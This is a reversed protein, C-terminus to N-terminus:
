NNWTTIGGNMDLQLPVSGLQDLCQWSSADPFAFDFMMGPTFSNDSDATLPPLQDSGGGSSYGLDYAQAHTMDLPSQPVQGQDQSSYTVSQRSHRQMDSFGKKTSKNARQGLRKLLNHHRKAQSGAPAIRSLYEQVEEAKQFREVFDPDDAPHPLSRVSSSISVSGRHQQIKYVFLTSIACMAMYQTLWFGWLLRGHNMMPHVRDIIEYISSICVRVNENHSSLINGSFSSADVLLCRRTVLIRSHALALGLVSNQREWTQTGLSASPRPKLFAPLDYEWQELARIMQSGREVIEEKSLHQIPYLLDNSKAWTRALKTHYIFAEINGHHPVMGLDPATDLVHDEINLPYDQDIDEDRLQRPQGLMVSLYCDIDYFSWFARKRRELELPSLRTKSPSSNRHLGMSIVLTHTFGFLFRCENIHSVSLLYLCTALRSEVSALQAPGPENNLLARSQEFYSLSRHSVQQDGSSALDSYILAQAWVILVSAARVPALSKHLVLDEMWRELTQQHFFRFTPMAFRFYHEVLSRGEEINPLACKTTRPLVVDGYSALPVAEGSDVPRDVGGEQWKYLFSVGSAPGIHLGNDLASSDPPDVSTRRSQNVSHSQNHNAPPVTRPYAEHANNGNVNHTTPAAPEISALSISDKKRPPGVDASYDCPIEEERCATCSPTEGTCRTKRKRCFACAHTTRPHKLKRKRQPIPDSLPSLQAGEAM